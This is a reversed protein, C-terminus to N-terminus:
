WYLSVRKSFHSRAGIEVDGLNDIWADEGIWSYSGIRLRWPFKVYVGPKIQVGQAIAAGFARLLAIRHGRGPIWSRIFLAQVLIWLAETFKSRGRDFSGSDYSSLDLELFRLRSGLSHTCVIRGRRQWEFVVARCQLCDLKDLLATLGPEDVKESAGLYTGPIPFADDIEAVFGWLGQNSFSSNVIWKQTNLAVASRIAREPVGLERELLFPVVDRPQKGDPLRGGPLDLTCRRVGPRFTPKVCFIRESQIPLVIVSDAKEVRWYELEKGKDCLWREGVLTVWKLVSGCSSTWCNGNM